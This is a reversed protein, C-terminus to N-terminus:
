GGGICVGSGCCNCFACPTLRTHLLTICTTMRSPSPPPSSPVLCRSTPTASQPSLMTAATAACGSWVGWRPCAGGMRGERTGGGRRVPVGVGVQSGTDGLFAIATGSRSLCHGVWEAHDMGDLASIFDQRWLGLLGGGGLGGGKGQVSGGGGQEGEEGLGGEGVVWCRGGGGGVGRCVSWCVCRAAQIGWSLSLPAAGASATGWGSRM